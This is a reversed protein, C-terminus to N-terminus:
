YKGRSAAFQTAHQLRSYQKQLASKLVARRGTSKAFTENLEALLQPRSKIPILEEFAGPEQLYKRVTPNFVVSNTGQIIQHDM